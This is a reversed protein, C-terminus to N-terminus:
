LRDLVEAGGVAAGGQAIDEARCDAAAVLLAGVNLCSRVRKGRGGSHGTFFGSPQTPQRHNGLVPASRGHSATLVPACSLATLRGANYPKALCERSLAPTLALSCGM